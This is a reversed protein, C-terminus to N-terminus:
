TSARVRRLPSCLLWACSLLTGSAGILLTLRVGIIESVIGALIAGIPMVGNELLHMCANVRGLLHDPISMQLLSVANVSYVVAAGDGVLQILMLVALAVVQPGAALPIGLTTVGSLLATCVLTIGLGCRRVIRAALLAGLLGGVGGLTVLLGYGAPTIGLIRLVYLAYLTAFAGGFLSRMGAYAALARLLPHALLARWGERMDSWVNQREETRSPIQEPLRILGVCLASALFSLADFLIAIPATLAQVLLGALAPGGIEALANSTELKSNGAVIDERQLLAPLFSRHAVEFFVSPVGVLAAVVYLLEIRLVGLMAALPISCLLVARGVDALILIPRRRLRDVWVGAFLGVCLVPISGLAALLGMQATTAQLTLVAALPLGERTIRSGFESISQGLWLLAFHRHILFRHTKAPATSPPPQTELNM